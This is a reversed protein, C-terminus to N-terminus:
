NESPIEQKKGPNVESKSRGVEVEQTGPLVWGARLVVKSLLHVDYPKRAKIGRPWCLVFYLQFDLFQMTRNFLLLFHMELFAQHHKVKM